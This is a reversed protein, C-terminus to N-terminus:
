PNENWYHEDAKKSTIEQELLREVMKSKIEEITDRKFDIHPMKSNDQMEGDDLYPQLCFANCLMWRLQQNEERILSNNIIQMTLSERNPRNM